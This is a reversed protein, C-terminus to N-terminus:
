RRQKAWAAVAAVAATAAAASGLAVLASLTSQGADASATLMDDAEGGGVRRQTGPSPAASSGGFLAYWPRAPARAGAAPPPPASLPPSAVLTELAALRSTVSRLHSLLTHLDRSASPSLSPDSSSPTTLGTSSEDDDEDLDSEDAESSPEESTDETSAPPPAAGLTRPPFESTLEAETLAAATAGLKVLSKPLM